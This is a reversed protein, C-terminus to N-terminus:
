EDNMKEYYVIVKSQKAYIVKGYSSGDPVIEHGKGVFVYFGGDIFKVSSSSYEVKGVYEVYANNKIDNDCRCIQVPYVIFIAAIPILMLWSLYLEFKGIEFFRCNLKGRVYFEVALLGAVAFILTVVFMIVLSKQHEFVIQDFLAYNM